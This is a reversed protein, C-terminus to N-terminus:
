YAGRGSLVVVVTRALIYLDLWLDSVEAYYVDIALRVEFPITSRGSTQWLGTIGPIARLSAAHRAVLDGRQYMLHPRPGVLSMNGLLVNGIQPLEDLSTRRLWQGIPTVRPDRRIKGFTDFEERLEAPLNKHMGAAGVLMTRFKLIRFPRGDKGPRKQRFIVPGPSDLKVLLAILLLFPAILITGLLTAVLDFTRKVLQSRNASTPRVAQIGILPALRRILSMKAFHPTAVDIRLLLLEHGAAGIAVVQRLGVHRRLRDVADPGHVVRLGACSRIGDRNDRLVVVPKLSMEPHLRLAALIRSAAASDDALVAVPWGWWRRKMAVEHLTARALLLMGSCLVALIAGDVFIVAPSGAALFMSLLIFSCVTVGLVVRRAQASATLGPSLTLPITVLAALAAALHSVGLPKIAILAGLALAASLAIADAALSVAMTLRPRVAHRLPVRTRRRRPPESPSRWVDTPLRLQTRGDVGVTMQNTEVKM